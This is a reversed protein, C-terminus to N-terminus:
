QGKVMEAKVCKHLLTHIRALTHYIGTKSRGLIEAIKKMPYEQYYRKMLLDRDQENLKGFCKQLCSAREDFVEDDKEEAEVLLDYIDDSLMPRVRSNRKIFNFAKNKAITMAWATFNSGAKFDDFNELMSAATDQLLDEADSENHVLMCLFSYVRDQCQGYLKFFEKNRIKDESNYPM